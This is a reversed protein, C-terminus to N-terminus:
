KTKLVPIETASVVFETKCVLGTAKCVHDAYGAGAEAYINYAATAGAKELELRNDEFQAAATIPGKFGASKIEQLALINAQHSTMTLMILKIKGLDVKHWFDYDTADGWIISCGARQHKEVIKKNHDVALVKDGQRQRTTEYAMSGFPGMGFILVEAQGLDIKFDDPHRTKSEFRHLFDALRDYVINAKSNLPAAVLFSFTLALAAIILWEPGLWGKKAAIAAVLLGFESYNSLTLTALLSTRVRLRFRTLVLFYLFSKVTLAAILGLAIFVHEM